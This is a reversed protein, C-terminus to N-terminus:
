VRLNVVTEILLIELKYEVHEILIEPDMVSQEVTQLIEAVFMDAQDAAFVLHPLHDVFQPDVDILLGHQLFGTLDERKQKVVYFIPSVLLQPVLLSQAIQEFYPQFLLFLTTALHKLLVALFYDPYM